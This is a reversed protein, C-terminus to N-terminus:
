RKMRYKQMEFLLVGAAISLNLSTARGQMPLRLVTECAETQEPPLGQRESGLLLISPSQYNVQYYLHEGHASSGYLHYQHQRAWQIFDDFNAEAIPLSFLAGMSARVASPHFPDVGGELLILGSAGVADITRLITGLNGPDQPAVIAVAFSFSPPSLDELPTLKSQVVALIGQPNEKDAVSSFAETSAPLVEIGDHQASEILSQAYDSSLLDPSFLIFEFPAKNEFAEGVHRIGEVVFLSQQRRQKKQRLARAQKIKSNQRSTIIEM